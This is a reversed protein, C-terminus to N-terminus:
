KKKDGGTPSPATTGKGTGPALLYYPAPHGARIDDVAKQRADLMPQATAADPGAPKESAGVNPPAPNPQAAVLGVSGATLFLALLCRLARMGIEQLRAAGGRAGAAKRDRPEISSSL